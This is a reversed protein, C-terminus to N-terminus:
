KQKRKCRKISEELVKCDWLEASYSLANKYSSIAKRYKKKLEYSQGVTAMLSSKNSRKAKLGDTCINIAEDLREEQHLLQGLHWYPEAYAADFKIAMRLHLEAATKDDAHNLNIMAIAYHLRSYGPEEYLLRNLLKLTHEYGEEYLHRMAEEVCEDIWKIKEM